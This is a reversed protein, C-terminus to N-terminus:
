SLTQRLSKEGCKRATSEISCCAREIAHSPALNAAIHEAMAALISDELAGSTAPARSAPQSCSPNIMATSFRQTRGLIDVPSNPYDYARDDLRPITPLSRAKAAHGPKAFCREGDCARRVEHAWRNPNGFRHAM